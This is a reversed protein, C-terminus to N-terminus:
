VAAQATLSYLVHRTESTIEDLMGKECERYGAEAISTALESILACSRTMQLMGYPSSWGIADPNKDTQRMRDLMSYILALRETERLLSDMFM